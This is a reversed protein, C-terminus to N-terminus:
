SSAAELDITKPLALDSCTIDFSTEFPGGNVPVLRVGIRTAKATLANYTDTPNPRICDSQDGADNTITKELLCNALTMSFLNLGDDDVTMGDFNTITMAPDGTVPDTIITTTAGTITQYGDAFGDIVYSPTGDATPVGVGHGPTCGLTVSCGFEGTDGDGRISYATIKGTAEGGPLRADEIRGSHRLSLGPAHSFPLDFSVEVCRASSMLRSAAINALYAISRAGRDTAFYARRRLDGIPLAGEADVPEDANGSVSMTMPEEDGAENAIEQLISSMTFTGIESYDRNAEYTAEISGSIKWKYLRYATDKNDEITVNNLKSYADKAESATVTWGGGIRAGTTPWDALLGDGTYSRIGSFPITISGFGYQQWQVRAEIVIKRQPAGSFSCQVSDAFMDGGFDLTGEEGALIHSATLAHTVRDICWVRPRSELVTDAELRREQEIFMPDFYEVQRMTAALADKAAQYNSPRAMLSMTMVDENIAEPAGVLRGFFLPTADVAFWAWRKRTMNLLGIRPNKVELRLTAFDGEQHDIEFRLIQEDERQFDAEFTTQDADVWAFHFTM